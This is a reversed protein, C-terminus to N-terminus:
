GPRFGSTEVDVVAWGEGPHSAPQGWTSASM